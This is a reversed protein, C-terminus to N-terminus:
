LGEWYMEMSPNVWRWCQLDHSFCNLQAMKARCSWQSSLFILFFSKVFDFIHFFSRIIINLRRAVSAYVINVHAYTTYTHIYTHIHIHVHIIFVSRIAFTLDLIRNGTFFFFFDELSQMNYWFDIIVRVTTWYEWYECIITCCHM